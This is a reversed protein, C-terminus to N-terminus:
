SVAMKSVYLLAKGRVDQILCAFLATWVLRNHNMITWSNQILVYKTDQKESDRERKM